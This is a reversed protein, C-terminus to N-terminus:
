GARDRTRGDGAGAILIRKPRLLRPLAFCWGDPLGPCRHGCRCSGRPRRRRRASRWGAIPRTSPPDCLGLVPSWWWVWVGKPVSGVCPGSSPPPAAAPTAAGVRLEGSDVRPGLPRPSWLCHRACRCSLHARGAPGLPGGRIRRFLHGWCLSFAVFVGGYAAYVRVFHPDAQFTPIVGYAILVLAGLLGLSWPRGQRLWQWMLWGGGIEALGALAFLGLAM